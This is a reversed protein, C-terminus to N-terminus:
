RLAGRAKRAFWLRVGFNITEVDTGPAVVIEDTDVANIADAQATSFALVTVACAVGVVGSSLGMLKM